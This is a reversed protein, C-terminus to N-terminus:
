LGFDLLNVICKVREFRWIEGEWTKGLEQAGVVRPVHGGSRRLLTAEGVKLDREADVGGRPASNKGSSSAGGCGRRCSKETVSSRTKISNLQMIKSQASSRAEYAAMPTGTISLCLPAGGPESGTVGGADQSRDAENVTQWNMAARARSKLRWKQDLLFPCLTGSTHCLVFNGGLIRSM